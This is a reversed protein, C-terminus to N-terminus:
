PNLLCPHVGPLVGTGCEVAAVIWGTTQDVDFQRMVPRVAPKGNVRSEIPVRPPIKWGQAQGRKSVAIRDPSNSGLSATLGDM